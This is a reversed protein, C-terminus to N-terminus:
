GQPARGADTRLLGPLSVDIQSRMMAVLSALESDTARLAAQLRRKTESRLMTRAAALRRAITARHVGLEVAVEEVTRGDAFHRRLIRRLEADLSAVAGRLAEDFARRYHEAQYAAEPDGPARAPERRDDEDRVAAGLPRRLDAAVRLAIVRV